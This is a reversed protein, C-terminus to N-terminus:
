NENLLIRTDRPQRDSRLTYKTELKWVKSDKHSLITLESPDCMQNYDENPIVKCLGWQELLSAIRNRRKIDNFTLTTQRGDLAFLELFHVCYYAGRKHLLHCSQFLVNDRKSAVGIRTLTEKILLFKDPDSLEIQLLSAPTWEYDNKM